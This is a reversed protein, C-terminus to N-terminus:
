YFVYRIRDYYIPVYERNNVTQMNSSGSYVSNGTGLETYGPVIMKVISSDGVYTLADELASSFFWNYLNDYSEHSKATSYAYGYNFLFPEYGNKFLDFTYVSDERYYEGSVRVLVQTVSSTSVVARNGNGSDVVNLYIGNSLEVFQNERFVGSAPYENLVEIGKEAIIKRIIKREATKLEEYTPTDSCSVTFVLNLVLGILVFIYFGKKM